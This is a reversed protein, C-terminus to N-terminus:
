HGTNLVLINFNTRFNHFGVEFAFKLSRIDSKMPKSDSKKV